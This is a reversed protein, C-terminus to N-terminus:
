HENRHSTQQNANEDSLAVAQRIEDLRFPKAIFGEPAISEDELLSQADASYGSCIVVPLSPYRQKINRLTERGCMVPMALDLMVLDFKADEDLQDLAQQGNAACVAHHGLASLLATATDRIVKEDDVLLVRRQPARKEDSANGLSAPVVHNTKEKNPSQLKTRPLCVTFTSGVDLESECEIVGGHQRVIGFAMALGLGTGQGVDKTTFFPEFVRQATQQDMGCGDDRVQIQVCDGMEDHKANRTIITIQGVNNGLADRANIVLNLIVREIQESDICVPWLDVAMTQSFNIQEGLIHRMFEGVRTVADNVSAVQFSLPSQRSFGLLQQTLMAARDVAESAIAVHEQSKASDSSHLESLALNASIAMLLNNFDHAIGGALQGAAHMKQSQVIEVELKKRMTVDEVTVIRGDGHDNVVPASYFAFVGSEDALAFDQKPMVKSNSFSADWFARFGNADKVAEALRNRVVTTNSEQVPCDAILQEAVGTAQILKGNSDFFLIGECIANCSAQLRSALIRADRTQKRVRTRLVFSWFAFCGVVSLGVLAAIGLHKSSFSYSREIMEISIPDSAMIRFDLDSKENNIVSRRIGTVAVVDGVKIKRHEPTLSDRDIRISFRTDHQSLRLETRGPWMQIDRVTGTVTVRNLTQSADLLDLATVKKPPPLKSKGTVRLMRLLGTTDDAGYEFPLYSCHVKDGSKVGIPLESRLWHVTAGDSVAIYKRSDTALVVGQIEQLDIPRSDTQPSVTKPFSLQDSSMAMMFRNKSESESVVIGDVSVIRDIIDRTFSVPQDTGLAWRHLGGSNRILLQHRSGVSSVETVRGRLRCYHGIMRIDFAPLIAPIKAPTPIKGVGIVELKKIQVRYVGSQTVGSVRVLDGLQPNSEPRNLPLTGLLRIGNNELRVCSRFEDYLVLTAEVQFPAPQMESKGPGLYGRLEELDRVVSVDPTSNKGEPREQNGAVTDVAYALPAYSLLALAALALVISRRVAM